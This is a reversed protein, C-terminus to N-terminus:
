PTDAAFELALTRNLADLTARAAAEMDTDGAAIGHRPAKGDSLGVAVVRGADDNSEVEQAWIPSFVLQDHLGRLADVTAEVAGTLGRSGAARGITRQQGLTVHVEIEDTDPFSLVALLKVRADRGETRPDTDAVAADFEETVTPADATLDVSGGSAVANGDDHEDPSAAVERDRWRVFEVAVPHDTFRSALQTAQLALGSGAASPEAHVQVFLLDDREIFGTSRVGPLKRLALELDDLHNM